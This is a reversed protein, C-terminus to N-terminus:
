AAFGEQELIHMHYASASTYWLMLSLSCNELMKCSLFPWLYVASCHVRFLLQRRARTLRQELLPRTSAYLADRVLTRYLSSTFGLCCHLACSSFLAIFDISVDFIIYAWGVAPLHGPHFPTNPPLTVRVRAQLLLRRIWCSACDWSSSVTSASPFDWWQCCSQLWHGCWMRLVTVYGFRSLSCSLCFQRLM